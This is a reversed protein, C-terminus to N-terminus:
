VSTSFRTALESFLHLISVDLSLSLSLRPSFDRRRRVNKPRDGANTTKYNLSEKARAEAVEAAVEKVKRWRKRRRASVEMCASFVSRGVSRPTCTSGHALHRRCFVPWIRFSYYSADRIFIWLPWPRLVALIRAHGRVVSPPLFPSNDATSIISTCFKSRELIQM